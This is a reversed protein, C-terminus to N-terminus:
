PGVGDAGDDVAKVVTVRVTAGGPVGALDATDLRVAAGTAPHGGGRPAEAPADTGASEPYAQVLQGTITRGAVPDTGASAPPTVSLALAAAGAAVALARLLRPASPMAKRM